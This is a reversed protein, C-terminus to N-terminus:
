LCQHFHYLQFALLSMRLLDKKPIKGPARATAAACVGSDPWSGGRGFRGLTGPVIARGARLAMTGPVKPRNPLPPEHGSEPTQASAVALAGPLTGFFSRRRM